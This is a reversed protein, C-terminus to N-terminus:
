AESDAQGPGVLEAAVVREFSTGERAAAEEVDALSRARFLCLSGEDAPVLVSGLYAIRGACSMRAGAARLSSPTLGTAYREVVYVDV